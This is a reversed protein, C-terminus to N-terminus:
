RTRNTELSGEWRGGVETRGMWATHGLEADAEELFDAWMGGSSLMEKQGPDPRGTSLASLLYPFM